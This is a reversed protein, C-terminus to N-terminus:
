LWGFARASIEGIQCLDSDENDVWEGSDEDIYGYCEAIKKALTEWKDHKAKYKSIIQEGENDLPSWSIVLDNFMNNPQGSFQFEGDEYKATQFGEDNWEPCRCIVLQGEKPKESISKYMIKSKLLKYYVTSLVANALRPPINYTTM